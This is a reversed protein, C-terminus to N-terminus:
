CRKAEEVIEAFVYVFAVNSQDFTEEKTFAVGMSPQAAQPGM